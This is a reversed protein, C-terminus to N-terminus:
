LELTFRDADNLVPFKKRFESLDETSIEGSVISEANQSASAILEGRPGM